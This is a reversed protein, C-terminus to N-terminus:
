FGTCSLSVGGLGNTGIGLNGTNVVSSEGDTCNIGFGSNGSVNGVPTAAFLGSGFALRIGDGNGTGSPVNNQITTSAIQAESRLSLVIGFGNNGSIVANQMNIASGLFAFIGGTAAPSGNGTITNVTSFGFSTDGVVLSSARLNVGQGTNGSITNGGILDASASNVGIGNQPNGPATITGNGTIANMAILAGSGFNVNIGNAGNASVTNGGPLNLNDLGIRGSGSNFVGIGHRTNQTVISNVVAASASDIAIGDRANGAVTVADVVGSAGHGYVIGTRGTGQVLGNQVILGAAGDALIGNRGGTVAIGDITVRSGTVRIVDLTADAGVVTAGPAAAALKVDSRNIVINEACTGSVLITLSKRDDGRTLARAVTDGSACDVTVTRDKSRDRERDQDSDAVATTHLAALAVAGLACAISRRATM